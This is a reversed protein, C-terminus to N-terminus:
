GATDNDSSRRTDAESILREFLRAEREEAKVLQDQLRTKAAELDARLDQNEDLLHANERRLQEIQEGLERATKSTATLTLTGDSLRGKVWRGLGMIAALVAAPIGLRWSVIDGGSGDSGYAIAPIAAVMMAALTLLRM